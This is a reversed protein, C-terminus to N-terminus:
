SECYKSINARLRNIEDKYEPLSYQRTYRYNGCTKPHESRYTRDNCFFVQHRYTSDTMKSLQSKYSDCSSSYRNNYTTNKQTKDSTNSGPNYKENYKAEDYKRKVKSIESKLRKRDYDNDSNYYRSQLTQLQYHLKESLPVDSDDGSASLKSLSAEEIQKKKQENEIYTDLEADLNSIDIKIIGLDHAISKATVFEIDPRGKIEVFSKNKQITIKGNRKQLIFNALNNKGQKELVNNITNEDDLSAYSHTFQTNFIFIIFAVLKLIPQHSVTRM